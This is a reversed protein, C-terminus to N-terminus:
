DLVFKPVGSKRDYAFVKSRWCDGIYITGNVVYLKNVNVPINGNIDPLGLYSISDVVDNTIADTVKNLNIYEETYNYDGNHNHTCSTMCTLMILAKVIRNKM